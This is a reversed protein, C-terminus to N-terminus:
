ANSILIGVFYNPARKMQPYYISFEEVCRAPCRCFLWDLLAALSGCKLIQDFNTRASLVGMLLSIVMEKVGFHWLVPLSLEWLDDCVIVSILLRCEFIFHNVSSGYFVIFYWKYVCEGLFIFMSRGLWCLCNMSRSSSPVQPYDTKEYVFLM